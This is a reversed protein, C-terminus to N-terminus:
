CEIYDEKLTANAYYKRILPEYVRLLDGLLKEWERGEFCSPIFSEKLDVLNVFREQIIPAKEFHHNYREFHQTSRFRAKMWANERTVMSLLPKEHLWRCFLTAFVM